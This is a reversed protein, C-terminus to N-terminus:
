ASARKSIAFYPQNSLTPNFGPFMWAAAGRQLEFYYELSYASGAYAAPIAGRYGSGEATMAVSMWREAQDVHRYLLRVADPKEAGPVQLSLALERGAPFSEPSSHVCRVAPREPKGTVARIAAQARGAEGTAEPRTQLKAQMASLDTEIAPLRDIWHGRRQPIEGYSVDPQYVTKAREAMNAWTDRAKRYRELALRGAEADGTRTFVEYLAASRLKAAFFEGVGIQILVDEEVRRLAPSHLSGPSAARGRAEDLARSATATLDEIWQAVEVPSYKASPRGQLLATVYEVVTSFMQPDLPSVMGFCKPAPTDSHPSAESGAVIPMNPAMEYWLSRNSASDLHASTMLALVRSANALSAEVASAVPGFEAQLYRRWTAPDVDPNYLHRGGCGTTTRTNRGTM